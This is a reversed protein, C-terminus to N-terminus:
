NDPCSTLADNVAVLIEDVTIPQDHGAEGASCLSADASGLAVRVM